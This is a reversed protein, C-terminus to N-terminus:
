SPKHELCCKCSSRLSSSSSFSGSVDGLFPHLLTSSLPFGPASLLTSSMWGCSTTAPRFIPSFSTPPPYFTSLMFLVNAHTLLLLLCFLLSPKFYSWFRLMSIHGLLFSAFFGFFGFFSSVGTEPDAIIKLSSEGPTVRFNCFTFTFHLICLWREGNDELPQLAMRRKWGIGSVKEGLWRFWRSKLACLFFLPALYM